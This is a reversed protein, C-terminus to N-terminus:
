FGLILGLTWRSGSLSFDKITSQLAAPVDTVQVRGSMIMYEAFLHYLPMIEFALGGGIQQFTGSLKQRSYYATYSYSGTTEVYTYDVIANAYVSKSVSFHVFPRVPGFHLLEIYAVADIGLNMFSMLGTNQGSGTKKDLSYGDFVGGLAITALSPLEFSFRMATSAYFGSYTNDTGGLDAKTNAQGLGVGLQFGAEAPASIIFLGALITFIHIIKKRIVHSNRKM